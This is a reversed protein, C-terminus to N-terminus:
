PKEALLRQFLVEHAHIYRGWDFLDRARRRGAQGMAEARGWDALLRLMADALADDDGIDFLFGTEGDVVAETLGDARSALLPRARQMAQIAVQPLGEFLSPMVLATARDILDPVDAADVRGVFDVHAAVGITEALMRLGSAEPGDGAVILRSNSVRDAVRAFARIAAAVNKQYGLRGLCLFRPVDWPLPAPEREDWPLANLITTSRPGIEPMVRQAADLVRASCSVLYDCSRMAHGMPHEAAWTEEMRGRLAFVSLAPAAENALQHFGLLAYPQMLLRIEPRFRLANQRTRSLNGAVLDFQGITEPTIASLRVVPVGDMREDLPEDGLRQTVIEVEHGLNQFASAMLLTMREVGGLSPWLRDAWFQIRTM